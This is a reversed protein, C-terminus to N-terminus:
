SQASHANLLLDRAVNLRAALAQTGGQDPHNRAILRRHAAVIADRDADSPLGLLAYAETLAM